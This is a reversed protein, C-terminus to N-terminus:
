LALAHLRGFIAQRASAAFAGQLRSLSQGKPTLMFISLPVRPAFPRLALTPDPARSFPDVFAVMDDRVLGDALRSANLEMRIRPQVGYRAFNDRILVSPPTDIDFVILPVDELDGPTVHDLRALPHHADMLCMVDSDTIYTEKVHPNGTAGHVFGIDARKQAVMEVVRKSMEVHFGTTVDEFSRSFETVAQTLGGFALAPIAAVTIRGRRSTQLADVGDSFLRVQNQLREAEERLQAGAQTLYLRNKRREFLRLGTTDEFLAIAKSVAPQTLNMRRATQSVSACDCLTLFIELHRLNPHIM